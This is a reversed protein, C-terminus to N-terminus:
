KLWFGYTYYTYFISFLVGILFGISVLMLIFIPSKFAEKKM